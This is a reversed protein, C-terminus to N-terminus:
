DVKVLGSDPYEPISRLAPARKGDVSIVTGDAYEAVSSTPGQLPAGRTITRGTVRVPTARVPTARTSVFGTGLGGLIHPIKEKPIIRPIPVKDRAEGAKARASKIRDKVKDVIDSPIIGPRELLGQM